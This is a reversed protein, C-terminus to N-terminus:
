QREKAKSELYRQMINDRFSMGKDVTIIQGNLADLLGCCLAVVAKGCDELSLIMEESINNDKLYKFFDKGFILSFSETEVPGFRIVNVRSGEKFLHISLYKAFLELLAKSAAVFDYGQFFHDPGISSIGIIHGPYSGFVKKIRKTYEILPWTSYELTKFLSRKRYEALTRTRQAVGVNNILFDIKIEQKKIELLLKETDEDVSVDAEILTPKPANLKEFDRFICTHDNKGWKYTLYTRAGAEGFKKATALGIGKTGGTILASKGSFDIQIM